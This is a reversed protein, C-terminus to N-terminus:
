FTQEDSLGLPLFAEWNKKEPSRIKAMEIM